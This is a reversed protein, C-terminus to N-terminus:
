GHLVIGAPLADGFAANEESHSRAIVSTLPGTNKVPITHRNMFELIMATTPPDVDRMLDGTKRAMRVLAGAVHTPDKYDHSLLGEIWTAVEAPPVVREVSGYLPDRLGFRSLSWFHQPLSKQPHIESLLKRGLRIKDNVSLREMNAMAMWIELKEQATHKTTSRTNKPDLILVQDQFFQRQQGPTLGAAVRRWMIWWEKNVQTNNAFVPGKKYIAWLRKIREPDFGHGLGPRLCFGTLNLWRSEVEPNYARVEMLDLLTDTLSRLLSLPWTNKTCGSLSSIQKVMHSLADSIERKSRDQTNFAETMVQVAQDILDQDFVQTDSVSALDEQARLQFSLKWRHTSELSRCWIDLTGVETYEAQIHVPLHTEGSKKGYKIVTQVPPLPTLSDDLRVLDGAKDASRYSSSYMDFSVRRNALVTMNRDTLEVVSGEDLGREVLCVAQDAHCDTQSAMGLYYSRPSGSGVRVGKGLKAMGYYSAGMAVALDPDPNELVTPLAQDQEGFWHRVVERIRETIIRPKLSGGNFLIHRPQHSIGLSTEIHAKHKDLFGCLHRTMAPEQEYPLGFESIGKRSARVAKEDPGVLPFFGELLIDEIMPKTLDGSVTGGILSSGQGMLIIKEKQSKGSLLAEKAQRCQHCLNKWRDGSLAPRNKGFGMEVRRALALDINDGGLILHDGVAIREFRPSGESERVTILSFDTTGGGIDCILILEGPKVYNDWDNEHRSLWSYFAALPEELLTITKLGALKAAEVTLERAAEDFSAPVTIVVFQNELWLSEDDGMDKNWCRRIHALYHASADVPSLKGVENGSGWPLIKAKRDAKHHCLWSKASSILRAPVKAGHDRAFLGAFHNDATPYPQLIAERSIDYPGPIYLFSPLVNERGIEGPGILQPVKFITIAKRKKEDAESLDLYSVASNTTGLDIGVIYAMSDSATM